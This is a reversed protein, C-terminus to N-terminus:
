RMLGKALLKRMLRQYPVDQAKVEAKLMALLDESLRFTITKTKRKYEQKPTISTNSSPNQPLM